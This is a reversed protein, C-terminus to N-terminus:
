SPSASAISSQRLASPSMGLHRKVARHLHVYNGFGSEMAVAATKMRTEKLLCTAHHLRLRTIEANVTSDLNLRFLKYLGRRSMGSAAVVDETQIPERYHDYIFRLARALAPHSVALMGTSRRPVVQKPVILIPETPVPAGSMLRDLLAAAEYGVKEMNSDVSSLPVPVFDCILDDNDAGIIAIEEPVKIEAALCAHLITMALPDSLPMVALPKPLLKLSRELWQQIGLGSESPQRARYDLALFCKGAQEVEDKFGAMREREPMIGHVCVFALHKYGRDLFHRAGMRGIARNDPLVLAAHLDTAQGAMDVVPVDLARKRIFGAMSSADHFFTILGDTPHSYSPFIMYSPSLDLQWGAERAYRAIGQITQHSFWALCVQVRKQPHTPKTHVPPATNTFTPRMILM